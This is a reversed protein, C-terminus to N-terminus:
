YKLYYFKWLENAGRNLAMSIKIDEIKLDISKKIWSKDKNPFKAYM